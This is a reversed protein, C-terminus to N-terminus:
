ARDALEVLVDGHCSQPACFCGLRKGRLTHLDAMLDPRLLVYERYKAICTARDGDKGLVFPNGWKGPQGKGARGIYVDFPEKRLNVVQTKVKEIRGHMKAELNEEAPILEVGYQPIRINWALWRSIRQHEATLSTIRDFLKRQFSVACGVTCFMRGGPAKLAGQRSHCFACRHETQRIDIQVDM